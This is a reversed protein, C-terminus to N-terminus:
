LVRHIETMKVQVAPLTELPVKSKVRINKLLQPSEIWDGTLDEFSTHNSAIAEAVKLTTLLGDGSLRFDSFIIHGSPEGGLPSGGRLMEEFIFRDGVSVRTLAVGEAVLMRELSFNTMLTGVVIPPNLRGNRKLRRAMMLLIADGDILRGSSSVFLSRDGDGDFAVGFDA